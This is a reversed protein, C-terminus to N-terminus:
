WAAGPIERENEMGGAMMNGKGLGTEEFVGSVDASIRRGDDIL